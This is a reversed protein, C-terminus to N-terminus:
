RGYSGSRGDPSHRHAVPCRRMRQLVYYVTWRRVCGVSPAIIVVCTVMCNPRVCLARDEQGPNPLVYPMLKPRSRGGRPRPSGGKGRGVLAQRVATIAFRSLHLPTGPQLGRVRGAQGAKGKVDVGPNGGITISENLRWARRRSFRPNAIKPQMVLGHHAM